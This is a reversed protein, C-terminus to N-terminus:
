YKFKEMIKQSKEDKRKKKLIKKKKGGKQPIFIDEV